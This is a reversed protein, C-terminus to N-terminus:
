VQKSNPIHPHNEINYMRVIWIEGTIDVELFLHFLIIQSLEDIKKM